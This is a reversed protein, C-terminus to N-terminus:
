NAQAHQEKLYQDLEPPAAVKEAKAHRVVYAFQWRRALMSVKGIEPGPKDLGLLSVIQM